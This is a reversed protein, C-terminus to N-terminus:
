DAVLPRPTPVYGCVLCLVSGVEVENDFLDAEIWTVYELWEDAAGCRRCADM